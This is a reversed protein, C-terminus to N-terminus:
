FADQFNVATYTIAHYAHMLGVGTLDFCGSQLGSYSQHCKRVGAAM